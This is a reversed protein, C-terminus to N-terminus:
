SKVNKTKHPFILHIYRIKLTKPKYSKNKLRDTVLISTIQYCITKYIYASYKPIKCFKSSM